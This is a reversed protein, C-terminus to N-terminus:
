RLFFFSFFFFFFIVQENADHERLYFRKRIPLLTLQDHCRRGSHKDNERDMKDVFVGVSWKLSFLSHGSYWLHSVRFGFDVIDALSYGANLWIDPSTLLGANKALNRFLLLVGPGLARLKSPCLGRRIRPYGTIFKFDAETAFVDDSSQQHSMVNDSFRRADRQLRHLEICM